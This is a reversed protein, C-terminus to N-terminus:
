LGSYGLPSGVGTCFDYGPLAYHTRASGSFPPPVCKGVTIDRFVPTAPPNSLHRYIRNHVRVSSNTAQDNMHAVNIMGAVAPASLSTGATVTWSGRYVVWGGVSPDALLSVDPDGAYNGVLSQIVDQYNPRVQFNNLGGGTDRWVIERMFRNTTQNRQITTGGVSIVGPCSAPSNLSHRDGASAVYVVGPTNRRFPEVFIDPQPNATECAYPLSWSMSVQGGGHALVIDRAKVVARDMARDTANAAEVLFLKANPAMAHAWQTDLAAEMDWGQPDNSALPPRIGDAYVITLDAPPLGFQTSFKKIDAIVNPSHLATVIAIAGNGGTPNLTTEDPNCGPQLPSVLNYICALSAPTNYPFGRVPPGIQLTAGAPPQLSGLGQIPIFIRHNTYARGPEAVVGAKPGTFSEIDGSASTVELGIIASTNENMVTTVYSGVLISATLANIEPSGSSKVMNVLSKTTTGDIYAQTAADYEIAAQAPLCFGSFMVSVTLAQLFDRHQRAM